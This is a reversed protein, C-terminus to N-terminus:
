DTVPTRLCTVVSGDRTCTPRHGVSVAFTAAYFSLLFAVLLAAARGIGVLLRRRAVDRYRAGREQGRRDLTGASQAEATHTAVAASIVLGASASRGHV